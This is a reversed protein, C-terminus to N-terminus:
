CKQSKSIKILLISKVQTNASKFTVNGVRLSMPPCGYVIYVMKQINWAQAKPEDQTKVM